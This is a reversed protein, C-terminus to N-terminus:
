SLKLVVPFEELVISLTRGSADKSEEHERAIKGCKSVLLFKHLHFTVGEISVSLDSPLEVNYFGSLKGAPAMFCFM